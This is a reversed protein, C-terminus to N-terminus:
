VSISMLSSKMDGTVVFPSTGLLITKVDQIIVVTFDVLEPIFDSSM